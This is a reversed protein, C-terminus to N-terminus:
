CYNAGVSTAAGVIQDILRNNTPSRPIMKSFRVIQEGFVATRELLDWPHRAPAPPTEDRLVLSDNCEVGRWWADARSRHPSAQNNNAPAERSSQVKLKSNKDNM